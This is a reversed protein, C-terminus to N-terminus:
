QSQSQTLPTPQPGRQEAVNHGFPNIVLLFFTIALVIVLGAVICRIHM